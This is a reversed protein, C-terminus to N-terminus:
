DVHYAECVFNSVPEDLIQKIEEFRSFIHEDMWSFKMAARMGAAIAITPNIRSADPKLYPHTIFNKSTIRCNMGSRFMMM